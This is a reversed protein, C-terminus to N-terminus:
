SNKLTQCLSRGTGPGLMGVPQIFFFVYRRAASSVTVKTTDAWVGGGAEGGPWAACPWCGPGPPRPPRPPGPPAALVLSPASKEALLGMRAFDGASSALVNM